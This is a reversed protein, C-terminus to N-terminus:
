ILDLIIGQINFNLDFTNDDHTVVGFDVTGPHTWGSIAGLKTRSLGLADYVDNLFIHGRSRLVDNAWNGQARLFQQNFLMDSCWAPSSADFVRASNNPLVEGSTVFFRPASKALM